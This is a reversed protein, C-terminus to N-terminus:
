LLRRQRRQQQQRKMLMLNQLFQTLGPNPSGQVEEGGMDGGERRMVALPVSDLAMILNAELDAESSSVPCPRYLRKAYGWCQEIFNLECHFKPLYLVHEETPYHKELIDMATTAHKLIDNNTVYGQCAKGAKFLVRASETSDPSRLWGYYHNVFTSEDHFWIVVTRGNALAQNLIEVNEESWKWTRRDLEAWADVYQGSPKKMWGYGMKKMWRGATEHCIMKKIGLCKKVIDMASVPILGLGRVVSVIFLSKLGKGNGGQQHKPRKKLVEGKVVGGTRIRRSGTLKLKSDQRMKLAM